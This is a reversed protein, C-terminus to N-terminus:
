PCNSLFNFFLVENSQLSNMKMNDITPRYIIINNKRLAFENLQIDTKISSKVILISIINIVFLKQCIEYWKNESNAMIM